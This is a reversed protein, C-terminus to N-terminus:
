LYTLCHTFKKHLRVLYLILQMFFHKNEWLKQPDWTRPQGVPELPCLETLSGHWGCNPDWSSDFWSAVPRCECSQGYWEARVRHTYGSSFIAPSPLSVLLGTDVPVHEDCWLHPFFSWIWSFALIFLM